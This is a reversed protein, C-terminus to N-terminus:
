GIIARNILISIRNIRAISVSTDAAMHVTCSRKQPQLVEFGDEASWYLFM